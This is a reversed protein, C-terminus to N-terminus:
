REWEALQLANGRALHEAAETYKGRADLVYALGFHLLFRQADTLEGQEGSASGQELLRRQVTLDPESLRGRLLEALNYHAWAFRSNHRLAARFCNEAGQLDGTSRLMDGLNNHAEALDPKLELARRYCAVAESIRRLARYAEGLNNHFPAASGQLAIAREIYEVAVEHKDVQHAIVGLLHLADPQNPEVALIQRYTQEAAQLRGAQHHQVAISLAEPIRAM